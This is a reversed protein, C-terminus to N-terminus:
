REYLGIMEARGITSPELRRVLADPSEGSALDVDDVSRGAAPAGAGPAAAGPATGAAGTQPSWGGADSSAALPAGVQAQVGPRSPVVAALVLQAVVLVLFPAYRRLPPM